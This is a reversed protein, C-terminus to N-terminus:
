WSFYRYYNLVNLVLAMLIGLWLFFKNTIVWSKLYFILNAVSQILFCSLNAGFNTSWFPIYSSAGIGFGFFLIYIYLYNIVYFALVNIAIIIFSKIM